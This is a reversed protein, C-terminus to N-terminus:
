GGFGVGIPLDYKLALEPEVNHKPPCHISEAVSVCGRSDVHGVKGKKLVSIGPTALKPTPAPPSGSGPKEANAESGGTQPLNKSAVPPLLAPWDLEPIDSHADVPLIRMINEDVLRSVKRV